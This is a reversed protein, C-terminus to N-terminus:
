IKMSNNNLTIVCLNDFVGTEKGILCNPKIEAVCKQFDKEPRVNKGFAKAHEPVGGERRTSLLGDVDFMYVQGQAQKETLGETMMAAVTLNAIGNAAQAFINFYLNYNHWCVIVRLLITLNAPEM